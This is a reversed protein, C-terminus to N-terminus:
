GRSYVGPRPQAWSPTTGCWCRRWVWWGTGPKPRRSTTCSSNETNWRGRLAHEIEMKELAALGLEATFFEIQNRGRNKARYMATDANRRLTAADRGDRPYLSIGISATLVDRADRASAPPLAELLKQGVRFADHGDNLETLVLGFEDGGLRALCDSKRVSAALREAVRGLAVDGTPHGLTDNIQKFRDLDIFLLGSALQPPAGRGAGTGAAGRLAAQQPTGTLADHRAQHALQDNLQRHEIAGGCGRAAELGPLEGPATEPDRECLLLFAGLLTGERSLIPIAWGAELNSESLLSRHAELAPELALDVRTPLGSAV